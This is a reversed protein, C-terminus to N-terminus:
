ATATTPQLDLLRQAEGNATAHRADGLRGWTRDVVRGTPLHKVYWPTGPEEERDYRWVGDTSTASWCEGRNAPDAFNNRFITTACHKIVPTLTRRPRRTPTAPQGLRRLAGATTIVLIEVDDWRSGLVAAVAHGNCDDACRAYDCPRIQEIRYTRRGVKVTEGIRAEVEAYATQM